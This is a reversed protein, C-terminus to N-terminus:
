QKNFFAFVADSGGDVVAAFFLESPSDDNFAIGVLSENAACGDAVRYQVQLDFVRRGGPRPVLTGTVVCAGLTTSFDGDADISMTIGVVDGTRRRWAGGYTGVVDALPVPTNYQSLAMASYDLRGAASDASGAIGSSGFVHRVPAAVPAPDAPALPNIAGYQFEVSTAVEFVNVSGERRVSGNAGYVMSTVNSPVDAGAPTGVLGYYSGDDLVILDLPAASASGRQVTGVFSGQSDALTPAPGPTGVEDGGGGGGGGCAAVLAAAALSSLLLQQRSMM